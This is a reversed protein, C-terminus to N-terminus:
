GEGGSRQAFHAVLAGITLGITLGWVFDAGDKSLFALPTL